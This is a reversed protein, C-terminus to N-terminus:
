QSSARARNYDNADIDILHKKSFQSLNLSKLKDNQGDVYYAVSFEESTKLNKFRIGVYSYNYTGSVFNPETIEQSAAGKFYQKIEELSMDTAYYYTSGPRQSSLPLWSGYDRKGIYELRDGLPKSSFTVWTWWGILLVALIGLFIYFRKNAPKM